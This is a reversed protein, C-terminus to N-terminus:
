NVKFYGKEAVAHFPIKEKKCTKKWLEVYSKYNSEDAVIQKPKYHQIIRELNVKPSQILVLIDPKSKPLYVGSSDILVIKKNNYIYLNQLKKHSVIKSSQATAYYNLSLNNTEDSNSILTIESGKREILLSSKPKSFILFEENNEISNKNEILVIQFFLISLFAITTKRFNPKKLLIIWAIIVLYLGIMMWKTFPIDKIIFQELAAIKHIIYNILWISLEMLKLIPTWVINTAGMILVIIGIGMIISLLPLILCNTIFFLGSFQHFYYVSIPLTGIQAATSVTIIDWISTIIKNKPKFLSALLPQAWVIFFLAFYSLQFGVDYIFSPNFLLILFASILLTNYFNVSRRFCMGIAVFSFMTVSRLVSPTLGALIGFFSLSLLIIFLKLIANKKTNALPSLLFTLFGLLLGVHLGSVSLVHIAGAYQYDRMIDKSIDQQQGLLLAGFVHLEEKNFHHKELNNLITNRIQSALTRISFHSPVAYSFDNTSIQIQGFINKNELYKKYDFQNPNKNSIIPNIKAVFRVLTGYDFNPIDINNKISVIIKGETQEGNIKLVSAEYRTNNSSNKLKEGLEVIVENENKINKHHTFHNKKLKEDHISSTSLGSFLALIFIIASSYKLLKKTYILFVFALLVITSVLFLQIFTFTIYPYLLIGLVFFLSIRILPFQLEKM